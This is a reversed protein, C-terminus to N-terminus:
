PKHHKHDAGMKMDPRFHVVGLKGGGGGGGSKMNLRFHVFGGEGGGWKEYRAQLPCVGEGWKEYRAQLPYVGEGGVSKMHLEISISLGGEGIKM